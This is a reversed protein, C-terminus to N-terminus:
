TIIKFQKMINVQTSIANKIQDIGWQQINLSKEKKFKNKM